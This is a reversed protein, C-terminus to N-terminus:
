AKIISRTNGYAEIVSGTITRSLDSSLYAVLSALDAQTVKEQPSGGRRAASDPEISGPAIANVRVDYQRLAEAMAKTMGILGAKSACHPVVNGDGVLGHISAINVISGGREQEVMVEAARRSLFYPASLNTALTRDWDDDTFDFFDKWVFVGANNVVIDLGGFTELAKDVVPAAAAATRLDSVCVDVFGGADRVETAAEQLKAEDRAVLVVKAGDVALALAIARGLGQSAGSVIATKDELLKTM